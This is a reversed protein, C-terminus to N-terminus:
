MRTGAISRHQDSHVSLICRRDGHILLEVGLLIIGNIRLGCKTTPVLTRGFFDFRLVRIRM